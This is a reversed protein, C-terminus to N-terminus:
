RIKDRNHASLSIRSLRAGGGPHGAGAGARVRAPTEWAKPESFLRSRHGIGIGIGIGISYGYGYGYGYGAAAPVTHLNNFLHVKGHRVRPAREKASDWHKQHDLERLQGEDAVM